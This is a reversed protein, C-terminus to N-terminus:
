PAGLGGKALAAIADYLAPGQLAFLDNHHGGQVTFLRAHPLAAALDRGMEWPILEDDKGHIVLTPLTLRPAKSLTDFRDGVILSTPLFPVVRGAVAPISTYPAILVLRAGLGRAAMEAAVGTGLSLGSLVVHDATVGRAVLGELAAQADLYLGRESPSGPVNGYGRYEVLLVGLGRRRLEHALELESSLTQGNGHFHVVTFAGPPAPFHLAQVPNDDSARLDLLTAGAPVTPGNDHPAPYLLRRYGACGALILALYGALFLLAIELVRRSLSRRPTAM